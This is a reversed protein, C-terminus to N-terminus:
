ALTLLGARVLRRTLVLKENENLSGPLSAPTITEEEAIFKLAEVIKAPGFIHNGSFQIGAM